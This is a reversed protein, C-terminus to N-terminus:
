EPEGGSCFCLIESEVSLVSRWCKVVLAMLGLLLVSASRRRRDGLGVGSGALQGARVVLLCGLAYVWWLWCMGETSGARCRHWGFCGRKLWRFGQEIWMRYGYWVGCVARAPWDTL